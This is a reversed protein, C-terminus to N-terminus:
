AEQSHGRTHADTYYNMHGGQTVEFAWSLVAGGPIALGTAVQERMGRAEETTALRAECLQLQLQWCDHKQPQWSGTWLQSWDTM